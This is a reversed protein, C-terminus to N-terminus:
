PPLEDAERVGVFFRLTRIVGAMRADDFYAVLQSKGYLKSHDM